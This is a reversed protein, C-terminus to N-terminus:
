DEEPAGNFQECACRQAKCRGLMRRRDYHTRKAHTCRCRPDAPGYLSIVRYRPMDVTFLVEGSM